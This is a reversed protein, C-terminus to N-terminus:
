KSLIILSVEDNVFKPVSKQDKAEFIVEVNVKGDTGTWPFPLDLANLSISVEASCEYSKGEGIAITKDNITIESPRVKEDASTDCSDFDSLSYKVSLGVLERIDSSVLSKCKSFDSTFKLGVDAAQSPLKLNEICTQESTESEEGCGALILSFLTIKLVSGLSKESFM